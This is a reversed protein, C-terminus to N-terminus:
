RIELDMKMRVDLEASGGPGSMAGHLALDVASMVLTGTEVDQYHVGKLETGVRLELPGVSIAERRGSDGEGRVSIVACTRGARRAYGEVRFRLDLDLTAEAGMPLDKM